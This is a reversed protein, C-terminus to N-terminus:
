EQEEKKETCDLLWGAVEEIVEVHTRSMFEEKASGKLFGSCYILKWNEPKEM